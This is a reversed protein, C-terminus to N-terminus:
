LNRRRQYQSLLSATATKSHPHM